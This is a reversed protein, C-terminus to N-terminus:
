STTAFLSKLEASQNNGGLLTNVLTADSGARTAGPRNTRVYEHKTQAPKGSQPEGRPIQEGNLFTLSRRLEPINGLDGLTKLLYEWNLGIGQQQMSAEGPILIELLMQKLAMAQEMPSRNGDSYSTIKFNKSVFDGQRQEPTWVTPVSFGTNGVPKLLHYESIPDTWLWYAMHKFVEVQFAIMIQQM